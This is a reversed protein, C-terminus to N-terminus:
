WQPVVVLVGVEYTSFARNAGLAGNCPRNMWPKLTNLLVNPGDSTLTDTSPDWTMSHTYARNIRRRSDYTSVFKNSGLKVTRVTQAPATVLNNDFRIKSTMTPTDSNEVLICEEWGAVTGDKEYKMKYGPDNTALYSTQCLMAKTDSLRHINRSWGRLAITALTGTVTLSNINGATWSLFRCTTQIENGGNQSCVVASTESLAAVAPNQPRGLFGSQVENGSATVKGGANAQDITFLKCPLGLVGDAGQFCTIFTNTKKVRDMGWHGEPWARDTIKLGTTDVVTDLSPTFGVGSVGIVFCHLDGKFHNADDPIWQFCMLCSSGDDL